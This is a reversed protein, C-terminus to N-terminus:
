WMKKGRIEWSWQSFGGETVRKIGDAKEKMVELCIWTEMKGFLPEEISPRSRGPKNGVSTISMEKM